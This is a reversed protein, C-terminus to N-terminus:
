KGIDPWDLGRQPRSGVRKSTAYTAWVNFVLVIVAGTMATIQGDTFPVAVGCARAIEAAAMLLATITTVLAQRNKWTAANALEEGAKLARIFTPVPIM